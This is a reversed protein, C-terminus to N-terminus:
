ERENSETAATETEQEAAATAATGGYYECLRRNDSRGGPDSKKEDLQAILFDLRDATYGSNKVKAWTPIIVFYLLIAAAIVLGTIIKVTLRLNDAPTRINEVNVDENMEDGGSSSRMM